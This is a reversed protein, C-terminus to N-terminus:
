VSSHGIVPRWALIIAIGNLKKEIARNGASVARGTPIAPIEQEVFLVSPLAQEHAAGSVKSRRVLGPPNLDAVGNALVPPALSHRLLDNTPQHFICALAPHLGHLCM